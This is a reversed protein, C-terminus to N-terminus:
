SASIRSSQGNPLEAEYRRKVIIKRARAKRLQRVRFFVYVTSIMCVAAIILMGVAWFEFAGSGPRHFLTYYTLILPNSFAIVGVFGAHQRFERSFGQESMTAEM